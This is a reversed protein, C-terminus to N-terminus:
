KYSFKTYCGGGDHFQTQHPSRKGSVGDDRDNNSRRVHECAVDLAKTPFL